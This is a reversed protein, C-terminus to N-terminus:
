NDRSKDPRWLYKKMDVRFHGDAKNVVVGEKMLLNAQFEAPYKMNIISIYGKSNIVRQWPLQDKESSHLLIQGVIIAARPSGALGAIQGYSAVCGRPIKKVYDIVRAGFTTKM